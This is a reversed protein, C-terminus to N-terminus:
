EANERDQIEMAKTNREVALVITRQQVGDKSSAIVPIVQRRNPFDMRVSFSGDAHVKLPEGQMTVHSGPLASGRVVIEADLDLKFHKDRPVLSDNQDSEALAQYNVMPRKLKEEFLDQVERGHEGYGGSLAYVKDCDAEIDAWHTDLNDGVHAPPTTVTNSRALSYFKGNSALYGIELRLTHQPNMIDIFWNKVAGHVAIDRIIQESSTSSDSSSLSMLRLTLKATHWDQALATRARQVSFPNLEWSAHLWYPGRVLLILRDKGGRLMDNNVISVKEHHTTRGNGNSSHGNAAHGNTVSGNSKTNNASGNLSSNSSLVHSSGNKANSKAIDIKSKVLDIKKMVQKKKESIKAAMNSKLLTPKMSPSKVGNSSVPKAKAPAPKTAAMSKASSRLIAKVLEEKGMAGYGSVGSRKALRALDKLTQARLTTATM